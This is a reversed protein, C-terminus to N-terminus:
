RTQTPNIIYGTDMDGIMENREAGWTWYYFALYACFIADLRDEYQKLMGGKLLTLDVFLANQLGTNVLLPPDANGLGQWILDRLTRLGDRKMAVTGKKYPIREALGFLIVQAPHPYVEFFWRKRRRRDSAPSVDHSFGESQLQQSLRVSGADPYKTRNSSHASAKFRGFKRGILKECSRQGSENELILPADIAVVTDDTAQELIFEVVATSFLGDSFSHLSAGSVDGQLVAISTPNRDSQWALDVGIFTVTM